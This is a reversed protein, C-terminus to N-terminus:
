KKNWDWVVSEMYRFLDSCTEPSKTLENERLIRSIQQCIKKLKYNGLNKVLNSELSDQQRISCEAAVKEFTARIAAALASKEEPSRAVATLMATSQPMNCELERTIYRRESEADRLFAKVTETTLPVRFTLAVNFGVMEVEIKSLFHALQHGQMQSVKRIFNECIREEKNPTDSSVGEYLGFLDAM